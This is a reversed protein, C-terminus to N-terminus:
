EYQGGALMNASTYARPTGAWIQALIDIVYGHERGLRGHSKYLIQVTEPLPIAANAKWECGTHPMFGSEREAFTRLRQCQTDSDM